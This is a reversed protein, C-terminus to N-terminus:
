MKSRDDASAQRTSLMLPHIVSANYVNYMSMQVEKDMYPISLNLVFALTPFVLREFDSNWWKNYYLVLKDTNNTIVLKVITPGVEM